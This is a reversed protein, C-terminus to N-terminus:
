KGTELDRLQQQLRQARGKIREIAMYAEPQLDSINGLIERDEAIRERILLSELKAVAEPFMSPAVTKGRPLMSGAHVLELILDNIETRSSM